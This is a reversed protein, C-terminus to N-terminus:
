TPPSAYQNPKTVVAFAWPGVQNVILLVFIAKVLNVNATEVYQVEVQIVDKLLQVHDMIIEQGYIQKAIIKLIALLLLVALM